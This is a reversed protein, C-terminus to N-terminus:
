LYCSLKWNKTKDFSEYLGGDCGVLIYNPDNKKFAVAHNDVHKETENMRTFTKGGDSSVQM